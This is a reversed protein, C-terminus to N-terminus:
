RVNNYSNHIKSEEILFQNKKMEKQNDNSKFQRSNNSSSEKEQDSEKLINKAHWKENKSFNNTILVKM